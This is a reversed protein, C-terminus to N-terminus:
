RGSVGTSPTSGRVVLTVDLVTAGAPDGAGAPTTESGAVEALLRQVAAAGVEEIPQAVTTLPPSAVRAPALDDFGVVAVDDPVRLGAAALAEMAGVAIADSGAVLADFRRGTGDPGPRTGLDALLAATARRGDEVGFQGATVDAVPTAGAAVIGALAGARRQRASPNTAPGSVIAVHHRGCEALHDVALRGGGENDVDVAPVTPDGPDGIVLVPVGAARLAPPVPDHDISAASVVGDLLGGVSLRQVLVEPDSAGPQTSEDALVTAVTCGVAQAAGVVATVLSAFYADAFVTAAPQPIVLGIIGSRGGRLSRAVRDPVYGLEDMVQRVRERVEPRVSPHDNLVRSTTSRSVGAHRAVEKLTPRGRGGDPSTSM